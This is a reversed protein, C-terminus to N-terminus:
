MDALSECLLEPDTKRREKIESELAATGVVV